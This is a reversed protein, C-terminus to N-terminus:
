FGSKPYVAAISIRESAKYAASLAKVAAAAFPHIQPCFLVGRGGIHSLVGGIVHGGRNAHSWRPM